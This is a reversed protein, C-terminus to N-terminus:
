SLIDRFMEDVDTYGKYDAPHKAIEETERFAELTEPNPYDEGIIFPIRQERVVKRMFINVATDIDMGADNCFQSFDRELEKDVSITLEM